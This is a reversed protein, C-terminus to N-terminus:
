VREKGKSISYQTAHAVQEISLANNSFNDDIFTNFKESFNSKKTLPHHEVFQQANEKLWMRLREQQTLLAFVRASLESTDFPKTLYDNAGGQLGEVVDRKTSKATLLILRIHALEKDTKVKGVFELGNMNPMMVDSIILDPLFTRTLKLAQAGDEAEIMNYSENLRLRIFERLEYNDDVILITKLDTREQSSNEVTRKVSSQSTEVSQSQNLLAPEVLPKNTVSRWPTDLLDNSNFHTKGRLFIIQFCRLHVSLSSDTRAPIDRAM